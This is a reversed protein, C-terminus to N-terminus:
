DVYDMYYKMAEDNGEFWDFYLDKVEYYLDAYMASWENNGRAHHEWSKLNIAMVLEAMYEINDKWSTAARKFTDLIAKIGERGYCWEAISFDSTFTTKREYDERLNAEMNAECWRAYVFVGQGGYKAAFGSLQGYITPLNNHNSAIRAVAEKVKNDFESKKM